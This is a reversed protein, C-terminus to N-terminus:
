LIDIIVRLFFFKSPILLFIFIIAFLIFPIENLNTAKIFLLISYFLFYKDLKIM